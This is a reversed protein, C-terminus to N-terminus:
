EDDVVPNLKISFPFDITHNKNSFEITSLERLIRGAKSLMKDGIEKQIQYIKKRKERRKLKEPEPM